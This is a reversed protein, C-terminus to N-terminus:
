WPPLAAEAAAVAEAPEGRSTDIVTATEWRDMRRRMAERVDSTAESVSSGGALRAAIRRNAEEPAVECCVEVLESSTRAAMKARLTGGALM